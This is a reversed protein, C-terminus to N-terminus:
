QVFQMDFRGETIHIIEGTNVEKANFWFTGSAINNEQDFHSVKLEGYYQMTTKYSKGNEMLSPSFDYEGGKMTATM